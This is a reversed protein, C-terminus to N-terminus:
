IRSAAGFRARDHAATTAPAAIEAHSSSRAAKGAASSDPGISAPMAAPTPPMRRGYRITAPLM